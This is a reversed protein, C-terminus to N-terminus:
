LSVAGDIVSVVSGGVRPRDGEMMAMLRSPRGIEVGQSIEIRTERGREALYGSLAGAASGTAPDEGGEVLSTFMRARVPGEEHLCVLYINDAGHRAAVADLLEFDPKADAVCRATAV